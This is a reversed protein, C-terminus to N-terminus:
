KVGGVSVIQRGVEAPECRMEHRCPMLDGLVGTIGRNGHVAGGTEGHHQLHNHVVAPSVMAHHAMVPAREKRRRRSVKKTGKTLPGKSGPDDIRQLARSVTTSAELTFRTIQVSVELSSM